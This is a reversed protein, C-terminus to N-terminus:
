KHCQKRFPYTKAYGFKKAIERIKFSTQESVGRKGSLCRSVSSKSVGAISALMKLSVIETRNRSM